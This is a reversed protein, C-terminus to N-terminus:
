VALGEAYLAKVGNGSMAYAKKEVSALGDLFFTNARFAAIYFTM